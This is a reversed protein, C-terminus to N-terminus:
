GETDTRSDGTAFTAQPPVDDLAKARSGVPARRAQSAARLAAQRKRSRLYGLAVLEAIECVRPPCVAGVMPVVRVVPDVRPM